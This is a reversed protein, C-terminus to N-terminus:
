MLKQGKFRYVAEPTQIHKGELMQQIVPAVRDYTRSLGELLDLETIKEWKLHDNYRVEYLPMSFM